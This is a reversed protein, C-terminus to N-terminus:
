PAPTPARFLELLLERRRGWDRRIEAAGIAQLWARCILYLGLCGLVDWVGDRV